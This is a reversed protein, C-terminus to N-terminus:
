EVLRVPALAAVSGAGVLMSAATGTVRLFTIDVHNEPASVRVLGFAAAPVDPTSGAQWTKGDASFELKAGVIPSNGFNWRGPLRAVAARAADLGAATGDLKAAATLAAADTFIQAENRAVYVRGFDFAMGIMAMLLFLTACMAILVFGRRGM